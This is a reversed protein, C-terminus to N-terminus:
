LKNYTIELNKARNDLKNLYEVLKDSDPLNSFSKLDIEAYVLDFVKTEDVHVMDPHGNESFLKKIFSAMTPNTFNSLTISQKNTIYKGQNEPNKIWNRFSLLASGFMTVMLPKNKNENFNSTNIKQNEVLDPYFDFIFNSKGSNAKDYIRVVLGSNGVNVHLSNPNDKDALGKEIVKSDFKETVVRKPLIKIDIEKSSNEAM